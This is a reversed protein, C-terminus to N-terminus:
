LCNLAFYCLGFGALFMVGGALVVWMGKDPDVNLEFVLQLFHAGYHWFKGAFFVLMGFLVQVVGLWFLFDKM